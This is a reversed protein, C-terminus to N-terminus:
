QGRWWKVLFNWWRPRDTSVSSSQKATSTEASPTLSSPVPSDNWRTDGDREAPQVSVPVPPFRVPLATLARHFVGNRWRLQEVPVALEVDPLRDLLKEIALSGILRATNQAPCAHPGASWALHARNGARQESVLAPDNNAAAFSIVVPEAAPLRVGAFDIDQVPFTTGYNAMPPDTWLVEDLADEIPMSGGTLNGAFRDDSLLLRLSNAILNQQPESGAGMLVVLQHCMEEDTLESSHAMLWSTMDDGPEQRKLAVLELLTQTLAANSNEPDVGEFIRAVYKLMRDGIGPPTGFLENLMRLPLIKAYQNLLDAEGDAAFEDILEDAVQEVYSRVRNSDVRNMADNVAGRLRAHVDGDAFLCNPRYGMMPVASSVQPVKEQWPRPDKSFTSPNRLVELAAEYGIILTAPIGPAVDIPAASGYARLREYVASPDAAFNEDYLAARETAHAPCAPPPVSGSDAPRSTM